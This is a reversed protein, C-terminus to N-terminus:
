LNYSFGNNLKPFYGLLVAEYIAQM